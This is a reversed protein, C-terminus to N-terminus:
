VDKFASRRPRPTTSQWVWLAHALGGVVGGAFFALGVMFCLTKFLGESSVLACRSLLSVRSHLPRGLAPAHRPYALGQPHHWSSLPM